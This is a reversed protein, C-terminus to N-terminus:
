KVANKTERGLFPKPHKIETSRDTFIRFYQMLCLSAIASMAVGETVVLVSAGVAGSIFGVGPISAVAVEYFRADILTYFYIFVGLVFFSLAGSLFTIGMSQLYDMKNEQNRLEHLLSYGVIGFLFYNVFRLETIFILGFLKMLLFYGIYIAAGILGYKISLNRAKSTSLEAQHEM